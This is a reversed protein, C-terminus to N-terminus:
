TCMLLAICVIEYILLLDITKLSDCAHLYVDHLNM